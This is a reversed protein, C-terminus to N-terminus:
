IIAFALMVALGEADGDADDVDIRVRDGTENVPHNDVVPAVASDPYSFFEGADITIPTSLYDFSQTANHIQVTVDGSASVGAAAYVLSTGDLDAPIPFYFKGDGASVVIASDPLDGDLANRDAFIKIEYFGYPQLPDSGGLLEPRHTSAHYSPGSSM